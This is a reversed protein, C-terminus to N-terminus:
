FTNEGSGVTLWCRERHVVPVFVQICNSSGGSDEPGLGCLVCPIMSHLKCNIKYNGTNKREREGFGGSDEGM